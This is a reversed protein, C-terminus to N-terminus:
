PNLQGSLDFEIWHELLRARRIAISNSYPYQKLPSSPITRQFRIEFCWHCAKIMFFPLITGISISAM